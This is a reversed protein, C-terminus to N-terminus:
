AHPSTPYRTSLNIPRDDFYVANREQLARITAPGIVGDSRLGLDRQLAKVENPDRLNYEMFNVSVNTDTNIRPASGGSTGSSMTGTATPMPQSQALANQELQRLQEEYLQQQRAAEEQAVRAQEAERTMREQELRAQEQEWRRREDRVRGREAAGGELETQRQQINRFAEAESTSMDDLGRTYATHAGQVSKQFQEGIREQGVLNAGSYGLGRDAMANLHRQRNQENQKDLQEATLTFDEGLRQRSRQFGAQLTPVQGALGRMGADYEPDFDNTEGFRRTMAEQLRQLVTNGPDTQEPLQQDGMM